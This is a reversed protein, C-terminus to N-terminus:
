HSIAFYFRFAFPCIRELPKFPQLQVVRFGLFSALWIGFKRHAFINRPKTIHELFPFHLAIAIRTFAETKARKNLNEHIYTM